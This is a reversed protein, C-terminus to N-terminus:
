ESGNMAPAVEDKRAKRSEESKQASPQTGDGDTPLVTAKPATDSMAPHALVLEAWRHAPVSREMGWVSERQGLATDQREM